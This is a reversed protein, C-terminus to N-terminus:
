FRLVLGTSLRFNNQSFRANLPNTFRTLFYDGQILRVAFHPAVKLDLGGGVAMAYATSKPSALRAQLTADLQGLGFLGQVYPQLPGHRFSLRPGGMYSYLTGGSGTFGTINGVANGSVEGVFGLWSTPYVAIQGVGGNMNFTTGTYTQRTYQYGVYVDAKSNQAAASFGLLLSLSLLLAIKRFMSPNRWMPIKLPHRTSPRDPGQRQASADPPNIRIRVRRVEKVLLQSARNQHLTTCYQFQSLFGPSLAATYVSFINSNADFCSEPLKRFTM